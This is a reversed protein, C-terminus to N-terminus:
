VLLEGVFGGVVRAMFNGESFRELVGVLTDVHEDALIVVLKVVQTGLHLKGTLNGEFLGFHKGSIEGLVVDVVIGVDAKGLVETSILEGLSSGDPLNGVVPPLNAM